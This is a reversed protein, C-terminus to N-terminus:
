GSMSISFESKCVPVSEVPSVALALSLIVVVADTEYIGSKPIRLKYQIPIHPFHSRPFRYIMDNSSPIYVGSERMNISWVQKWTYSYTDRGGPCMSLVLSCRGIDTFTSEAKWVIDSRTEKGSRAVLSPM